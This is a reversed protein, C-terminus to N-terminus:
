MVCCDRKIDEKLDEWGPDIDFEPKRMTDHEEDLQLPADRESSNKPVRVGVFTLKQAKPPRSSQVLSHRMLATGATVIVNPRSSYCRFIMRDVKARSTPLEAVVKFECGRNVTFAVMSDRTPIWNSKCVIDVSYTSDIGAFDVNEYVKVLISAPAERRPGTQLMRPDIQEVSCVIECPVDHDPVRISFEPLNHRTVEGPNAYVWEFWQLPSGDHAVHQSAMPGPGGIGMPPIGLLGGVGVDGPMGMNPPPVGLMGSLQGPMRPPPAGPLAVDGSNTLRCEFITDFYEHFDLATTWFFGESSREPYEKSHILGFPVAIDQLGGDYIGPAGCFVQVYLKGEFTVARNVICPYYPNLRVGHIECNLQHPRCVFLTDRQLEYLYVFLRDSSIDSTSFRGAVGGTLDALAEEVRGGGGVAEWGGRDEITTETTSGRLTHIKAYAKEIISPWLVYPFFESRCCIPVNTNDTKDKSPAGVPVYDDVEVRMWTGHKYLRAIYVSRRVDWCYFLQRALKPRLAVAQLAEVFYGNDLSGQYVRGCHTKTSGFDDFLHCADAHDSFDVLRVWTSNGDEGPLLSPVATQRLKSNPDYVGCVFYQQDHPPFPVVANSTVTGRLRLDPFVQPDNV